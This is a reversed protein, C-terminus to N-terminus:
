KIAVRVHYSVHWPLGRAGFDRRREFIVDLVYQEVTETWQWM